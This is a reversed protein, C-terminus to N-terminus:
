RKKRFFFPAACFLLMAASCGANCGGSGGDGYDASTPQAIYPKCPVANVFKGGLAGESYKKNYLYINNGLFLYIRKLYNDMFASTPHFESDSLNLPEKMTKESPDTTTDLFDAAKVTYLRVYFPKGDPDSDNKGQAVAYANESDLVIDKFAFNYERWDSEGSGNKYLITSDLATLSVQEVIDGCALFLCPTSEITMICPKHSLGDFASTELSKSQVITMAYDEGTEIRVLINNKPESTNSSVSLLVFLETKDSVTADFVAEPHVTNGTEALDEFSLSSLKKIGPLGTKENYAISCLTISGNDTDSDGRDIMYLLNNLQVTGRPNLMKCDALEFRMDQPTLEGWGKYRYPYAYVYQKNDTTNFASALMWDTDNCVIYSLGVGGNKSKEFALGQPYEGWVLNPATFAAVKVTDDKECLYFMDACAPAALLAVMLMAACFIRSKKM